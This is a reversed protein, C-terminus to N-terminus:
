PMIIYVRADVPVLKRMNVPTNVNGAFSIRFCHFFDWHNFWAISQYTRCINFVLRHCRHGFGFDFDCDFSFLFFFLVFRFLLQSLPGRNACQWFSHRLAREHTDSFLYKSNLPLLASLRSCKFYVRLCLCIRRDDRDLTCFWSWPYSICLRQRGSKCVIRRSHVFLFRLFCYVFM